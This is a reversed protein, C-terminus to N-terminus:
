GSDPWLSMPVLFHAMDAPSAPGYVALYRRALESAAVLPDPLEHPWELHPFWRSRLAHAQEAGVKEAISSEGRLALRWLLRGAAFRVAAKHSGAQEVLARVYDKDVMDFLDSRTLSRHAAEMLDKAEDEWERAPMLGRRGGPKWQSRAAVVLPWDTTPEYIHITDRQGWTRVLTRPDHFLQKEVEAAKPRGKTRMALAWVGPALQQAQGGLVAAAAASLDSAGLGALHSRKARFFLVQDESLELLKADGKTCSALM